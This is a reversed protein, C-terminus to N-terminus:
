SATKREAPFLAQIQATPAGTGLAPGMREILAGLGRAVREMVTQPSSDLIEAAEEYSFGEGDMLVLAARQQPPLSALAAALAASEDESEEAGWFATLFLTEDGRGQTMPEGHRRLSKLWLSYLQSFAWIDLALGRQYRHQEALMHRCATLLLADRAERNGALVGAFRRLRPLLSILRHRISERIRQRQVMTAADDPNRIGGVGRPCGTAEGEHSDSSVM